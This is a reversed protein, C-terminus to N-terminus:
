GITINYSTGYNILGIKQYYQAKYLGLNQYLKEIKKINVNKPYKNKKKWDHVTNQSVGLLEGIDYAKLYKNLNLIREVIYNFEENNKYNRGPKPSSYIYIDYYQKRFKPLESYLKKIREYHHSFDSVNRIWSLLTVKHVYLDTSLDELTIYKKLNLIKEIYEVRQKAITSM